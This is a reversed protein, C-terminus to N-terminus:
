TFRERSALPPSLKMERYFYFKQGDSLDYIVCLIWGELGLRELLENISFDIDNRPVYETKYEVAM